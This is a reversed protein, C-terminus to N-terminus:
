LVVFVYHVSAFRIFAKLFDDLLLSLEQELGCFLLDSLSMPMECICEEARFEGKM